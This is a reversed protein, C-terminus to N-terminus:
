SATAAPGFGSSGAGGAVSRSGTISTTPVSSSKTRGSTREYRSRTCPPRRREGERGAARRPPRPPDAGAVVRHGLKLRPGCLETKGSLFLLGRPLPLLRSSGTRRASASRAVRSMSPAAGYLRRVGSHGPNPRKGPAEQGKQPSRNEGRRSEQEDNGHGGNQRLAVQRTRHPDSEGARRHGQSQREARREKGPRNRQQAARLRQARTERRCCKGRQRGSPRGPLVSREDQIEPCTEQQPGTIGGQVQDAVGSGEQKGRAPLAPSDPHHDPHRRDAAEGPRRDEAPDFRQSRRAPPGGDGEGVQARRHQEPSGTQHKQSATRKPCTRREPRFPRGGPARPSARPDPSGIPRSAGTIASTPACAAMISSMVMVGISTIARPPENGSSEAIMPAWTRPINPTAGRTPHSESRSPGRGTIRAPPAATLTEPSRAPVTDPVPRASPAVSHRSPNPQLRVKMAALVIRERPDSGMPFTRRCPRASEQFQSTAAM